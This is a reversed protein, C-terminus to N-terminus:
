RMRDYSKPYDIRMQEALDQEWKACEAQRKRLELPVPKRLLLHEEVEGRVIPCNTTYWRRENASYASIGKGEASAVPVSFVALVFAVIGLKLFIGL